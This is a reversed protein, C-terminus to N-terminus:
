NKIIKVTQGEARLLYVGIPYGSLDFYNQRTQGVLIGLTNYLRLEEGGTNKIYIIGSTPNPYVNLRPISPQAIAVNDSEVIISYTKEWGKVPDSVTIEVPDNADNLPYVGTGSVVHGPHVPSAEITFSGTGKPVTLVYATELPSFAPSLNGTASTLAKLRPESNAGLQIDDVIWRLMYNGKFLFRVRVNSEGSFRSLDALVTGSHIQSSEMPMTWLEVIHNQFNDTSAQVRLTGEIFEKALAYEFVLDLADNIESLDFVPSVLASQAPPNPYEYSRSTLGYFAYGNERTTTNLHLDGYSERTDWTWPVNGDIAVSEWGDLSGDFETSYLLTKVQMETTVTNNEPHIDGDMLVTASVPHISQEWNVVALTITDKQGYGLLGTWEYDPQQVNDMSWSITAETYTKGKSEMEIRLPREGPYDQEPTKIFGNIAIDNRDAQNEFDFSVTYEGPHRTINTVPKGTKDGAWSRSAPESDDTFSNNFSQPYPDTTRVYEENSDPGGGAQKIYLGRHEAVCNVCMDEWGEINEDVHYILLGNGPIYKDWGKQQRNELLFYENPTSTTIKYMVGEETPDPLTITTDSVLEIMPLWGLFNRTWAGHNAPTRGNDNWSGLGMIDWLDLHVSQGQTGYDADYFDPVGYVHTLEHAIVGIHAIDSGTYGRLEPSCSYRWIEVDDLTLAYEDFLGWSHSWISNDGAGAEQGHGGFIVHLADLVGDNNTDFDAFNCGDAHAMVAADYVMARPEGGTRPNYSDIPQSLMYPGYIDVHFDLKGYSNAYFFDFVSGTFEGNNGTYNPQNVLM